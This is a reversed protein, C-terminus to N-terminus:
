PIIDSRTVALWDGSSNQNDPNEAPEMICTSKLPKVKELVQDDAYKRPHALEVESFVSISEGKKKKEKKKKKTHPPTHNVLL